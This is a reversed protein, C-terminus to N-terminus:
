DDAPAEGELCTSLAERPALCAEHRESLVRLDDLAWVEDDKGCLSDEFCTYAAVAQAACGRAIQTEAAETCAELIDEVHKEQDGCAKALQACRAKLAAGAPTGDGDGCGAWAVAVAVALGIRPLCRLLIM